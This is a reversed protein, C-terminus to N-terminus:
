GNWKKFKGNISRIYGMKAFYFVRYDGKLGGFFRINGAM